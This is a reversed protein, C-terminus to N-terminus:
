SLPVLVSVIKKPSGFRSTFQSWVSLSTITISSSSPRGRPMSTSSYWGPSPGNRTVKSSTSVQAGRIRAEAPHAYDIGLDVERPRVGPGARKGMNALRSVRPRLSEGDLIEYFRSVTVATGYSSEEAVGFQAQLPM